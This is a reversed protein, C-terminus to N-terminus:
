RGPIEDSGRSDVDPHQRLRHAQVLQFGKSSRTGRVRLGEFASDSISRSKEGERIISGSKCPATNM